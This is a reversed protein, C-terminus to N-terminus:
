LLASKVRELETYKSLPSLYKWHLVASSVLIVVFYLTSIIEGGILANLFGMISMTLVLISLSSSWNFKQPVVRYFIKCDPCALKKDPDRYDKCYASTDDFERKCELCRYM